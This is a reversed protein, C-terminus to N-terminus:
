ISKISSTISRSQSEQAPQIPSGRIGLYSSGSLCVVDSSRLRSTSSQRQLHRQQGFSGISRSDLQFNRRHLDHRRSNALYIFATGYVKGFTRFGFIKACYDSVATYYLPRYIAFILVTAYQAILNPLIQLIGIATSVVVLVGIVTPTTFNDLLYGVIPM